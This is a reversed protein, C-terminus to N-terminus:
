DLLINGHCFVLKGALRRGATPSFHDADLGVANQIGAAVTVAKFVHPHKQGIEAVLNQLAGTADADLAGRDAPRGDMDVGHLEVSPEIGDVNAEVNLDFQLSAYAAASALFKVTHGNQFLVHDQVTALAVDVNELATGVCRIEAGLGARAVLTAVHRDRHHLDDIGDNEASADAFLLRFTMAATAAAVNGLGNTVTDASRKRIPVATAIQGYRKADERHDADDTGGLIQDLRRFIANGVLFADLSALIIRAGHEPMHSERHAFKAWGRGRMSIAGSMMIVAVLTTALGFLFPFHLSGM